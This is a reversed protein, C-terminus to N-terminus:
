ANEVKRKITKGIRTALSGKKVFKNYIESLNLKNRQITDISLKNERIFDVAQNIKNKTKLSAYILNSKIKYSIKKSKLWTEFISNSKPDEFEFIFEKISRNDLSKIKGTFAVKGGDIITVSDVFNNLETLIHSSIFISKGKKQLKKLEGFFINRAIPDLNAAPEDMIILDPDGILAQALLVKKKQGSSFNNPSKKAVKKLGLEKIKVIAFEDAAKQDYGSLYAMYSLYKETTMNEPFRATEPIYGLHKKAAISRNLKGFIQINGEYKAYAGIISKITTTKGAGNAGIFGHFEGKYVKFSVNKIAYKNRGYSKSLKNVILPTDEKKIKLVKGM